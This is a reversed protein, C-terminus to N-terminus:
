RGRPEKTLATSVDAEKYGPCHSPLLMISPLLQAQPQHAPSSLPVPAAPEPKAKETVGTGM